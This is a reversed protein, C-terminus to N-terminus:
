LGSQLAVWFQLYTRLANYYNALAFPYIGVIDPLSEAIVNKSLMPDIVRIVDSGSFDIGDYTRGTINIWITSGVPLIDEVSEREFKLLREWLGDLDHDVIYSDESVVWGYHPDLVPRLVDNLLVTSPDIDRPDCGQPPELYVTVWKGASWKNLTDPDFDVEVTFTLPVEFRLFGHLGDGRSYLTQVSTPAQNTVDANTAYDSIRWEWGVGSFVRKRERLVEVGPFMAELFDENMEAEYWQQVGTKRNLEFFSAWDIFAYASIIVAGGNDLYSQITSIESDYDPTNAQGGQDLILVDYALDGTPTYLEDFDEIQTGMAISGSVEWEDLVMEYSDTEFPNIAWDDLGPWQNLRSQIENWGRQGDSLPDPDYLAVRPSPDDSLYLIADLTFDVLPGYDIGLGDPLGYNGEINEFLGLGVLVKKEKAIVVPQTPDNQDVAWIQYGGGCGAGNLHTITKPPGSYLFGDSNWYAQDSEPYAVEEFVISTDASVVPAAAVVM